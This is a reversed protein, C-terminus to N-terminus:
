LSVGGDVTMEAGTIFAAEDSLLYLVMRAVEDAEGFRGLPVLKQRALNDEPSRAALMATNIPGPHVSNVRIGSAALGLAAAKTMGRVAWKSACYAFANPSGRLGATSSINVISGGGGNGMAEAAAQMGLFCGTQNVAIHQQWSDLTTQRLNQPRYIGANNVLGDLRGGLLRAANIADAWHAPVSVDMHIFSACKGLEGALAKGEAEQLDGIVVRGGEAVIMRAESAGQGTAGGTILITKDRFRTM